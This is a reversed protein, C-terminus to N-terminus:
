TKSSNVKGFRYSLETTSSTNHPSVEEASFTLNALNDYYAGAKDRPILYHVGTRHLPLELWQTQRGAKAAEANMQLYVIGNNRNTTFGSTRVSNCCLMVPLNSEDLAHAKYRMEGLACGPCVPTNTM